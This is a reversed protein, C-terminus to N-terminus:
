LAESGKKIRIVIKTDETGKEGGSHMEERKRLTRVSKSHTDEGLVLGKGDSEVQGM